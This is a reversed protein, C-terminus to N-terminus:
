QVEQEKYKAIFRKLKGVHSAWEKKEDSSGYRLDNNSHGGEYYTELYYKCEEVMEKIGWNETDESYETGITSHEYGITEMLANYRVIVKGINEAM